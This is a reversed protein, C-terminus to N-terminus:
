RRARSARQIAAAIGEASAASVNLGLEKARYLLASDIRITTTSKVVISKRAGEATPSRPRPKTMRSSM